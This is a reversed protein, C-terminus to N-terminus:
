SSKGPRGHNSENFRRRVEEGLSLRVKRGDIMVYNKGRHRRWFDAVKDDFPDGQRKAEHYTEMLAQALRLYKNAEAFDAPTFATWKYMKGTHAIDEARRKLEEPSLVVFVEEDAKFDGLIAVGHHNRKPRFHIAVLGNLAYFELNRWRRRPGEVPNDWAAKTFGM